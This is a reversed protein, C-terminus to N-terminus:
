DGLRELLSQTPSFRDDEEDLQELHFSLVEYLVSFEDETMKLTIENTM